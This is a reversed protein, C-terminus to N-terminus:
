KYIIYKLDIEYSDTVTATGKDKVTVGESVYCITGSVSVDTVADTIVVNYDDNVIVDSRDTTDEALIADTVEYFDSPFEYGAAMAQVVTGTFLENGVFSVYTSYDSYEMVLKVTGDKEQIKKLKVKGSADSDEYTDIEDKVYEKFEDIDYNGATFDGVSVESIKGDKGVFITNTDADVAPGCGTLLFSGTIILVMLSILKKMM